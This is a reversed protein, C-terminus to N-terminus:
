LINFIIFLFVDIEQMGRKFDIFIIYDNMECMVNDDRKKCLGM